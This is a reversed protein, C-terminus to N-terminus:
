HESGGAKGLCSIRPASGHARSHHDEGGDSEDQSLPEGVFDFRSYLATFWPNFESVLSLKHKIKANM